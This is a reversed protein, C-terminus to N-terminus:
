RRVGNGDMGSLTYPRGQSAVLAQLLLNLSSWAWGGQILTWLMVHPILVEPVFHVVEGPRSM